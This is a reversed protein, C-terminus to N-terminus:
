RNPQTAPLLRYRYVSFDEINTALVYDRAIIQQMAPLYKLLTLADGVRGNNLPLNDEHSIVFYAAPTTNQAALFENQWQPPTWPSILPFIYIFRSNSQRQSLFYIQPTFSWVFIRDTPTTHTRLYDAVQQQTSASESPSNGDGDFNGLYEASSTAGSLYTVFQPYIQTDEKIIRSAIVLLLVAILLASRWSPMLHPLAQAWGAWNLALIAGRAALLALPALMPLWHYPFFKHQLLMAIFAGLLWLWLLRHAVPERWSQSPQSLSQALAVMALAWLGIHFVIIGGVRQGLADLLGRNFGYSDYAQDIVITKVFEAWAGGVVLYVIFPVCAVIFGVVLAIAKGGRQRWNLTCTLLEYGLPLLLFLATYKFWFAVALAVGAVLWWGWGQEGRGRVVCYIAVVLPLIMFSDTQALYIYTYSYYSVGYAFAAVAGAGATYLQQGLLYLAVCTLLTWGLDFSWIAATNAGFLSFVAAYLLYILPPKQDWIGVYLTQGRLLAQAVDAFAGHDRGLPYSLAPLAFLAVGLLVLALLGLNHGARSM